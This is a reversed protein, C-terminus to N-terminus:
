NGTRGTTDKAATEAECYRVPDVTPTHDFLRMFRTQVAEAFQGFVRVLLGCGRRLIEGCLSLPDIELFETRQFGFDCVHKCSHIREM